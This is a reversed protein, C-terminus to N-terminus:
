FYTSEYEGNGQHTVHLSRAADFLALYLKTVPRAGRYDLISRTTLM